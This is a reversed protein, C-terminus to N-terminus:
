SGSGPKQMSCPLYFTTPGGGPGTLYQQCVMNYPTLLALQAEANSLQGSLNGIDTASKSQATQASTVAHRLQTMQDAVTNKYSHLVWLCACAVGIAIAATIYAGALRWDVHKRDPIVHAPAAYNPQYGPQQQYM